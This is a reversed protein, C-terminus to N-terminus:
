ATQSGRVKDEVLAVLAPDLVARVPLYWCRADALRACKVADKQTMLIAAAGPFAVDAASFPHHDPFAHETAAIGQARVLAFFRGPNAIGAIAHVARGRWAAADTTRSADVANRWPLPELLAVTERGGARVAHPDGPGVVRVVADATALRAVPERLPGAPLVLGNGFNRTGDVAVVEVDRALRYHQLGDDAIVVDCAPHAAVLARAAAVRDHGIWVPFGTAALILPEDGVVAPDDDPAVAREGTASGGYGRSVLAPHFGRAALAEALACALPTKGGGGVTVNGVVVVPVPLRQARLVGARYLARRAAAAARFLLSLPWLLAAIPTVRPAYWAAVVREAFTAAHADPM